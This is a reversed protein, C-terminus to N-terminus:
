FYLQNNILWEALEKLENTYLKINDETVYDNLVQKLQIMEERTKPPYSKILSILLLIDINEMKQIM